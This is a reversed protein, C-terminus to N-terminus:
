LLPNEEEKVKDIDELMIEHMLQDNWWLECRMLTGLIIFKCTLVVRYYFVGTKKNQCREFEEVAIHSLDTTLMGVQNVETVQLNTGQVLHSIASSVKKPPKM